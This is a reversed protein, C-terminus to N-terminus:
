TRQKTSQKGGYLVKWGKDININGLLRVDPTDDLGEANRCIWNINGTLKKIEYLGYETNPTEPEYGTIQIIGTKWIEDGQDFDTILLIDGVEYKNKKM